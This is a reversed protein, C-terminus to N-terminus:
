KLFRDRSNRRDRSDQLKTICNRRRNLPYRRGPAAAAVAAAAATYGRWCILAGEGWYGNKREVQWVKEKGESKGVVLQLYSIASLIELFLIELM